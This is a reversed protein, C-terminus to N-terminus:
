HKYYKLKPANKNPTIIFSCVTVNKPCLSVGFSVSGVKRDVRLSDIFAGLVRVNNCLAKPLCSVLRTMGLM